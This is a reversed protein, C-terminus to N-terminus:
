QVKFPRFYNSYKRKIEDVIADLLFDPRIFRVLDNFGIMLMMNYFNIVSYSRDGCCSTMICIKCFRSVGKLPM